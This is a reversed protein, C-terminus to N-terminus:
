DLNISYYHGNYPNGWHVIIGTLFYDECDCYKSM